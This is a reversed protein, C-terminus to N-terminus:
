IILTVSGLILLSVTKCKREASPTNTELPEAQEECEFDGLPVRIAKPSVGASASQEKRILKESYLVLSSM